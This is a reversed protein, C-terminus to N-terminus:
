DLPTVGGTEDMAFAGGSLPYPQRQFDEALKARFAAQTGARTDASWCILFDRNPVGFRFPFGLHEGALAQWRPLLIRAADYGDSSQLALFRDRELVAHVKLELSKTALNALACTLAQDITIGWADLEDDRAYRYGREADIVFGILVGPVFPRHILPGQQRFAAPMLQPLLIPKAEGWSLRGTLEGTQDAFLVAFHERVLERLRAESGDGLRFKAALNALGFQAEGVRIHDGGAALRANRDPYLERVLALVRDAFGPLSESPDPPKM